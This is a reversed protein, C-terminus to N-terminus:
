AWRLEAFWRGEDSWRDAVRLGADAAVQAIQDSAVRAWPFWHSVDEGRELRVPLSQIGTGPQDTEVLVAGTPSLLAATQRLLAVPDGGIGLNGDLLLVTEWVGLELGHDFVDGLVAEAGRASALQVARPSADIGLAAIGRQVLASVHRGPGCGLDLVPGRARAILREDVPDADALWRHVSLLQVVGDAHRATLSGGAELASEYVGFPRSTM